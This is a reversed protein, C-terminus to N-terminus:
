NKMYLSLPDFACRYKPAAQRVAFPHSGFGSFINYTEMLKM